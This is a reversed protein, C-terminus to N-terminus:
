GHMTLLTLSIGDGGAPDETLKEPVPAATAFKKFVKGIGPM